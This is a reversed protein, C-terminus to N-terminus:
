KCIYIYVEFEVTHCMHCGLTRTIDHLETTNVHICSLLSNTYCIVNHFLVFHLMTINFSIIEYM